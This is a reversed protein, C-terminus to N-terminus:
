RIPGFGAETVLAPLDLDAVEWGLWRGDQLFLKGSDLLSKLIEEVFYPNGGAREHVHRSLPEAIGAEAQFTRRVLDVSEDVSLPGVDLAESGSVSLLPREMAQFAPNHVLEKTNYVGLLVLPIDAIQRSVFHFM